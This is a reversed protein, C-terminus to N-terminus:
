HTISLSTWVPRQEDDRMACTRWYVGWGWAFLKTSPGATISESQNALLTVGM